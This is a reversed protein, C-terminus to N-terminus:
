DSVKKLTRAPVGVVTTYAPVDKVVAAGLGIVSFEGIKIKQRITAGAGIHAADGVTVTSALKAGTAIHVHNGIICDHEVIAGSNIITNMGLQAQANVICGPFLQCGDGIIARPSIIASPHRVILPKLGHSIALDYLKIRPHNNGTGGVGVIFFDVDRTRMESLLDDNGIIPVDFLNKGILKINSDLIGVIEIDHIFQLCDLIVRAHGGAGLIIVKKQM